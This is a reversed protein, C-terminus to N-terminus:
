KFSYKIKFGGYYNVGVAPNFWAAPTGNADANLNILSSYHANLANNIGVFVDTGFRGFTKKYGIKSNVLTYTNSMASNSDNMPAKAYHYTVVNFYVGAKLDMDIGTALSFPVVGTVKKGSNDQQVISYTNWDFSQTQYNVFKYNNNTVSTWIKLLSIPKRTDNLAIYSLMAELGKQNTSGANRYSTTGYNNVLPVIANDLYM